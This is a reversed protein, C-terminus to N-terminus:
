IYREVNISRYNFVSLDQYLVSAEIDPCNTKNIKIETPHNKAFM